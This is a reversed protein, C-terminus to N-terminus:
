KSTLNEIFGYVKESWDWIDKCNNDLYFVKDKLSLPIIKELISKYELPIIIAYVYDLLSIEDKIKMPHYGDQTANPNIALKDYEFYFRVGPTFHISLDEETPTRNMKREMVLRDGAQCNGWALMVYYFYDVPDNASNREEKTLVEASLERANVASLLKGCEFIKVAYEIPATHCLFRTMCGGYKCATCETIINPRGISLYKNANLIEQRIYNLISENNSRIETDRNNAKEYYIFDIINKIEWESINPYDSLAKYYVGDWIISFEHNGVDIIM